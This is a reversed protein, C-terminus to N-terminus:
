STILQVVKDTASGWQFNNKVFLTGNEAIKHYFVKDSTLKKIHQVFEEPTNAILISENPIAQLANNALPSTICPIGMAMAELLKNQLGTGIFMPAIFVKGAAYSTRIDEVWGSVTINQTALQTVEKVPNAGALLLTTEKPLLPLLQQVIYYSATVNPAYSMNGTFVLDYHKESSISTFFHEDVGNPIVHITAKNQHFIHQKDQESIISHFEFYDFIASEYEALRQYESKFLPRKWLSEEEIRREIGKSLADMYDLTKPCDHYNKVYEAVRILQCFIHDPTIEKLYRNIKTQITPSYFYAVQFPIRKVLARLVNFWKTFKGIAHIQIDKCYPTLQERDNSTVNVETLAILYIDFTKSLEKIQYYARLKDGKELPYPFRSTIVM